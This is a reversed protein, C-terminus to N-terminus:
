RRPAGGLRWRDTGGSLDPGPQACVPGPSRGGTLEVGKWFVKVTGAETLEAKFKEWHLNKVWLGWTPDGYPPQATGADNGAIGDGNLDEDSLAGTQMSLNYNADGKALNRYPAENYEYAGAQAGPNPM